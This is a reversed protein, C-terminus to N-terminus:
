DAELRARFTQLEARRADSVEPWHLDLARLRALIVESVMLRMNKKDDAPIVYWPAHRTSTARICDEYARMYKPWHAREAVDAESFKWNKEPEDIRSIFRERQEDRSVNLFFKVVITGNDHLYQELHRIAEYRQEFLQDLDESRDVPLRQYKTIIEPHVKTVLVEEYYSRNFITIRGREPMARNTRWLFGHDLEESSPKKFAHVKVGHPNVGRMVHAITSDKGAADMAQFIILMAYRDHAYMMSQLDDLQSVQEAIRAEYDAKDDYLDDVRHPREDLHFKGKGSYSLEDVDVDRKM